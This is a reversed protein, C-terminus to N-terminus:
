QPDEYFPKCKSSRKGKFKGKSKGKGKDQRQWLYPPFPKQKLRAKARAKALIRERSKSHPAPATLGIPTAEELYTWGRQGKGGIKQRKITPGKGKSGQTALEYISKYKM